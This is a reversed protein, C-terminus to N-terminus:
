PKHRNYFNYGDYLNLFSPQNHLRFSSNKRGPNPIIFKAMRIIGSVTNLWSTYKTLIPPMKQTEFPSKFGLLPPKNSPSGLNNVTDGNVTIYHYGRVYSIIGPSGLNSILFFFMLIYMPRFRSIL